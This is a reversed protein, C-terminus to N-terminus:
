IQIRIGINSRYALLSLVLPCYHKNKFKITEKLKQNMFISKFFNLGWEQLLKPNKRKYGGM